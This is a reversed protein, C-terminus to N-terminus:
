LFLKVKSDELAQNALEIVKRTKGTGKPGIIFKIM